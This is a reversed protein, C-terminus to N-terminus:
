QIRMPGIIKSQMIYWGPPFKHKPHCRQTTGKYIIQPPLFARQVSCCFIATIQQKDKLSFAWDRNLSIHGGFEALKEKVCSLLIGQAAAM